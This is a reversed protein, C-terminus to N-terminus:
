SWSYFFSVNETTQNWIAFLPAKTSIFCRNDGKVGRNETPPRFSVPRLTNEIPRTSFSKQVILREESIPMQPFALRSWAFVTADNLPELRLLLRFAPFSTSSMGPSQHYFYGNVCQIPPYVRTVESRTLDLERNLYQDSDSPCPCM